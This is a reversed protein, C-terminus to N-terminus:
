PKFKAIFIDNVGTNASYLEGGGFDITGTFNGAIIENGSADVAVANAYSGMSGADGFHKSWIHAGDSSFKAIFIDAGGGGTFEGGGFDAKVAFHGTAIVDGLADATVSSTGDSSVDGFSKSWLHDGSPSFKVIFGDWSDVSAFTGGGFDISGMFWGGVIVNGSADVAVTGAIQGNSADGFSRSWVHTGDAQFKAVFVNSNVGGTLEGGGFDATGTLDGVVIVNGSADATVSYARQFSSDGFGKSWIHTGDPDFKAVFINEDLGPATLDGGGFDITGYFAGAIIVNGSADVAVSNAFQNDASGFRKSWIHAGGPTFKAIFVDQGGASTLPGGGFDVTGNFYGTIVVNGSADTKVSRAWQNIGDGYRNSWLHTGNPAFKAIFVNSGGGGGPATLPGGGFDVTGAFAGTIIINGSADVADSEAWQEWQDGFRASWVYEGLPTDKHNNDSPSPSTSEDSCGFTLSMGCVLVALLFREGAQRM